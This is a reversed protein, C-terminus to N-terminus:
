RLRSTVEREVETIHISRNVVKGQKDLLLMTPLTLVGLENALRGDLGGPEHIQPWALRNKKLYDAVDKNDTDLCVGVLAFGDKGLRAHLERLQAMDAKCPECWTAWYHILVVKGKLKSVDLTENTTTKGKLQLVKGVSDLRAKAGAAKEGSPTGPFASALEGYWKKAEAEQGAFEQAMGLQLMADAADPSKPHAKLFGELKQLWETQVKTFDANPSQLALNYDATMARFEVYALLDDNAGAAKLKELQQKLRALADADNNGQAAVSLSDAVQKAWEVKDEDNDASEALKELMDTRRVTLQKQQDPSADQLQKDIQDLEDLLKQFQANTGSGATDSLDPQAVQGPHFFFGSDALQEDGEALIPTGIVRWGNDGQVLTGIQVQVHKGAADALTVVNEYVVLDKTTGESGAPVLGPKAGGFHLWTTEGDLAKQKAALEKFGAAAAALKEQLEKEKEPALALSKLQEGTLLLREFRAQDKTALARIVESSVEEASILKWADLKGDANTDLGWRSGGTNVWRFQEAKNDFNGDIDRYVEIGNQYYSWQDVVNDGNTDTFRRLLQKAPGRVVWGTQGDVKEAKITCQSTEAATPLDYEVDAQVPRLKLAEEVTPTAAHALSNPLCVCTGMGAWLLWRRVDLRM